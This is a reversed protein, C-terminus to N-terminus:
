KVEAYDSARGEEEFWEQLRIAEEHDSPANIITNNTTSLMLRGNYERVQLNQFLAAQGEQDKLTETHDTWLGVTVALGTDDVLTANRKQRTRGDQCNISQIPGNEFTIAILDVIENPLKDPLESIKILVPQLAPQADDPM